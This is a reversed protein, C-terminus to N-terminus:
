DILSVLYKVIFLHNRKRLFLKIERFKRNFRCLTKKKKKLKNKAQLANKQWYKIEVFM